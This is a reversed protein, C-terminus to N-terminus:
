ATRVWVQLVLYPFITSALTGAGHSHADGNLGDGAGNETVGADNTPIHKTQGPWDGNVGPQARQNSDPLVSSTYNHVHTPIQAKTLTHSATDGTVTVGKSGDSSGGTEGDVFIDGDSNTGAGIIARGEGTSAWTGPLYTNPDLGGTTLQVSGIPFILSTPAPGNYTNPTYAGRVVDNLYRKIQQDSDNLDSVPDSPGIPTTVDLATYDSGSGYPYSSM